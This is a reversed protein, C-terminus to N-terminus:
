MLCSCLLCVFACSFMRVHIILVEKGIVAKGRDGPHFTDLYDESFQRWKRIGSIESSAEVDARSLIM